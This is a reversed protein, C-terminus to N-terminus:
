TDTIFQPGEEASILIQLQRLGPCKSIGECHHGEEALNFDIVRVRGNEEVINRPAVDNHFIGRSHIRSMHDM